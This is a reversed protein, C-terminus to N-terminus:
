QMLDFGYKIISITAVCATEVRLVQPGLTMPKLGLDTFAQVETTSFGGEAGVFLWVNETEMQRLNEVAQRAGLAAQGEYAFLGGASPSRNFTEILTKFDAPAELKMLDGRGSQQTAGQIIKEFRPRKKEFVDSQTRIFSYDSFFPQISSVGLEVAKEIVAEFVPFRPISLALHVHPLQLPAIKRTEIIRAMSAQKTEEVIEVLHATSGEVILEFKAGLHQRCVDRIHHLLDGVIMVQNGRVQNESIWYRRM